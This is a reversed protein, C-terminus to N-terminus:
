NGILNLYVTGTYQKTNLNTSNYEIVEDGLNLAFTLEMGEPYVDGTKAIVRKYSGPQNSGQAFALKEPVYLYMDKWADPDISLDPKVPATEGGGNEPIWFKIPLFKPVIEFSWFPIRLGSCSSVEKLPWESESENQPIASYNDTYIIIEFTGKAQWKIYTTGIKRYRDPADPSKEVFGDAQTKIFLNPGCVAIYAPEPNQYFQLAVSVNKKAKETILASELHNITVASLLVSCLCVTIIKCGVSQENYKKMKRLGRKATIDFIDFQNYNLRISMLNQENTM